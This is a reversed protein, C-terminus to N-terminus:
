QEGSLIQYAVFRDQCSRTGLGCEIIRALTVIPNKAVVQAHGSTNRGTCDDTKGADLRKGIRRAEIAFRPSKELIRLYKRALTYDGKALTNRVLLQLSLFCSCYPRGCNMQFVHHIAENPLSLSEALMAEFFEGTTLDDGQYDLDYMQTVPYMNLKEKLEGKNQLALLAFPLMDKNQRCRMPSATALVETWNHNKASVLVRSMREHRISEPLLAQVLLPVAVVAAVIYERKVKLVAQILLFGLVALAAILAPGLPHFGFFQLLFNKALNYIPFPAAFISRFYDPTFAFYSLNEAWILSYKRLLLETLFVLAFLSASVILKRKM